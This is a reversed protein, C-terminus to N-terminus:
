IKLSATKVTYLLYVPHELPFNVSERNLTKRNIQIFESKHCLYTLHKITFYMDHTTEHFFTKYNIM